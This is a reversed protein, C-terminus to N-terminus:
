RDFRRPPFPVHPALETHHARRLNGGRFSATRDVTHLVESLEARIELPVSLYDGLSGGQACLHQARSVDDVYFRLLKVSTEEEPMFFPDFGTPDNNNTSFLTMMEMFEGTSVYYEVVQPILHLHNTFAESFATRSQEHDLVITEQAIGSRLANLFRVHDRWRLHENMASRGYNNVQDHVSRRKWALNEVTNEGTGEVVSNLVRVSETVFARFWERQAATVKEASRDPVFASM